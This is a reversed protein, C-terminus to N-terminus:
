GAVRLPDARQVTPHAPRPAHAPGGPTDPQPAPPRAPRDTAIPPVSTRSLSPSALSAAPSTRARACRSVALARRARTTALATVRVSTDLPPGRSAATCRTSDRIVTTGTLGASPRWA